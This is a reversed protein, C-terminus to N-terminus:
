TNRLVKEWSIPGGVWGRTVGIFNYRVGEYHKKELFHSVRGGGDANRLM